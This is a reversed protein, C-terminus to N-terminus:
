QYSIEIGLERAIAREKHSFQSKQWCRLMYLEDAEILLGACYRLIKKRDEPNDDILPPKNYSARILNLGILSQVPNIVEYGRAELDKQANAFKSVVQDFPLGKVKGAIYIKTRM